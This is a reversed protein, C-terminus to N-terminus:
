RVMLRTSAAATAEVPNATAGIGADAADSVHVLVVNVAVASLAPLITTLQVAGPLVTAHESVAEGVDSGAEPPLTVSVAAFQPETVEHAFFLLWTAVLPLVKESDIGALVPLLLTEYVYVTCPALPASVTVTVSAAAPVFLGGGTAVVHM